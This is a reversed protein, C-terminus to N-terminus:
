YSFFMSGVKCHGCWPAMFEILVYDTSEVVEALEDAQIFELDALVATALLLLALLMLSPM